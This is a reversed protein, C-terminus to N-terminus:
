RDARAERQLLEVRDALPPGVPRSPAAMSVPPTSASPVFTSPGTASRFAMRLPRVGEGGDEGLAKHGISQAPADFGDSMGTTRLMTLCPPARAVIPQRRDNLADDFARRELHSGPQLRCPGWGRRDCLRPNCYGHDDRLLVQRAAREQLASEAGRHRQRQEIGHHRRQRRLRLRSGRRREAEAGDVHRVAHIGSVHCGVVTPASKSNLGTICGSSGNRSWSTVTLLIFAGHPSDTWRPALEANRLPM